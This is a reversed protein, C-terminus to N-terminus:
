IKKSLVPFQTGTFSSARDSVGQQVYGLAQYFRLATESSELSCEAMGLAKAKQEMHLMLAKSVGCFRMDPSVYNLTIKGSNGMLSVGVIKGADEAVFFHGEQVWKEVNEVTKNALWKSLYIPDNGHDLQCLETISRRLVICAESADDINARRVRM